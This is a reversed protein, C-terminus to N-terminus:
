SLNPNNTGPSFIQFKVINILNKCINLLKAWNLLKQRKNTTFLYFCIQLCFVVLTVVLALTSFHWYWRWTSRTNGVCQTARNVTWRPTSWPWFMSGFLESAKLSGLLMTQIEPTSFGQRLKIIVSFLSDLVSLPVRHISTFIIRMEPVLNSVKITGVIKKINENNNNISRFDKEKSSELSHKM